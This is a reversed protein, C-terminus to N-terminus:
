EDSQPYFVDYYDSNQWRSHNRTYGLILGLVPVILLLIILFILNRYNPVDRKLKISYNVVQGNIEKFPTIVLHYRGKKISPIIWSDSHDGESWSEGDTYGSYFEVGKAITYSDDTTENVLVAETEFWTNRIDTLLIYECNKVDGNLEFGSTVIPKGVTSDNCAFGHYFVDQNANFDNLIFQLGLCVVLIGIILKISLNKKFILEAPEVMGISDKKPMQAEPFARSITSRAIHKGSFVTYSNKSLETSIMKPPRIYEASQYNTFVDFPFEGAADTAHGDYKNFLKYEKLNFEFTYSSPEVKNYNREAKLQIWNGDFEALFIYGAIPNYLFYEHWYINAHSEKKLVYGTVTYPIKDIVGTSGITFAPTYNKNPTIDKKKRIVVRDLEYYNACNGCVVYASQKQALVTIPQKCENCDVTIPKILENLAKPNAIDFRLNTLKLQHPEVWEGVLLFQNDKVTNFYYAAGGAGTNLEYVATGDFSVPLEEAIEGDYLSYICSAKETTIYIKADEFAAPFEDGPKVDAKVYASVWTPSEFKLLAYGLLGEALFVKDTQQAQSYHLQWLNLFGNNLQLRLRGIITFANGNFVGQSGIKFITADEPMNYHKIPKINAPLRFVTHRCNTCVRFTAKPSVFGNSIGCESCSAINQVPLHEM